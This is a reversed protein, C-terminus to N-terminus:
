IPHEPNSLEDTWSWDANQALATGKHHLGVATQNVKSGIMM